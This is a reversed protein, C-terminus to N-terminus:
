HSVSRFFRHFLEAQSGIGMKRYINKRHNKVTGESIELTNAISLSTHGHLILEAITRERASLVHRGFEHLAANFEQETVHPPRGTATSLYSFQRSLSSRVIPEFSAMRGIELEDFNPLRPTRMLSFVISASPLHAIYAAEGALSNAELSVCPHLTENGPPLRSQQQAGDAFFYLGDVGSQCAGYLADLTYGGSCYNHLTVETAYDLLNNHLLLAGGKRPFVTLCFLDFDILEFLSETLRCPFESTGVTSVMQSAFDGLAGIDVPSNRSKHGPARVLGKPSSM